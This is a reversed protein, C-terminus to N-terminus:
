EESQASMEDDPHAGSQLFTVCSRLATLARGLTVIRPHLREEAIRQPDTPPM